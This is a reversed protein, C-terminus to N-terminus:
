PLALGPPPTRPLQTEKRRRRTAEPRESVTVIILFREPRSSLARRETLPRRGLGPQYREDRM